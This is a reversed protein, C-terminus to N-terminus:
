KLKEDPKWDVANVAAQREAATVPDPLGKMAAHLSQLTLPMQTDVLQGVDFYGAVTPIRPVNTQREKGEYALQGGGGGFSGQKNFMWKVLCSPGVSKTARSVLYSLRALEDAVVEVDIQKAAHAKLLRLVARGWREIKQLHPAGSGAIVFKFPSTASGLPRAVHSTYNTLVRGQADLRIDIAYLAQQGAVFAPAVFVHEPPCNKPLTSLHDPFQRPLAEAVKALAGELTNTQSRLLKTLWDSIETGGGTMGLGAYGVLAEGDTTELCFVKTADDRFSGQFTLRRDAAILLVEPSTVGIILTM